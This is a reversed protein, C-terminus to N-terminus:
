NLCRLICGPCRDGVDVGHLLWVHLFVNHSGFVCAGVDQFVQGRPRRKRKQFRSRKCCGRFLSLSPYALKQVCDGVKLWLPFFSSRPFFPLHDPGLLSTGQLFFSSLIPPHKNTGRVCLRVNLGDPRYSLNRHHYGRPHEAISTCFHGMM